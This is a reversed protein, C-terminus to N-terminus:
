CATNRFTTTGFAVLLNGRTCTRLQFHSQHTRGGINEPSVLHQVLKFTNAVNIYVGVLGIGEECGIPFVKRSGTKLLYIFISSFCTSVPITYESFCNFSILIRKIYLMQSFFDILTNEYRIHSGIQLEAFLLILNVPWHNRYLVVGFTGIEKGLTWLCFNLKAAVKIQDNSIGVM